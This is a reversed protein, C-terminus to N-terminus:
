DKSQRLLWYSVENMSQTQQGEKEDLSEAKHKEDLLNNIERCLWSLAKPSTAQVTKPLNALFEVLEDPLMWCKDVASRRGRRKPVIKAEEDSMDDDDSESDTLTPDKATIKKPQHLHSTPSLQDCLINEKRDRLLGGFGGM